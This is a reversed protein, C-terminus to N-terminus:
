AFHQLERVDHAAIRRDIGIGGAYSPTGARGIDSPNEEIQKGEPQCCEGDADAHEKWTRGDCCWGQSADVHSTM